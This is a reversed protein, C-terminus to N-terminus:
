RLRPTSKRGQRCCGGLQAYAGRSLLWTCPPRARRLHNVVLDDKVTVSVNVTVTRTFYQLTTAVTDSRKCDCNCYLTGFLIVLQPGM